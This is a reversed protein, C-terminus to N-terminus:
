EIHMKIVERYWYYDENMGGEDENQYLTESGDLNVEVVEANRRDFPNTFRLLVKDKYIEFVDIEYRNIPLELVNGEIVELKSVGTETPKRAPDCCDRTEDFYIFSGELKDPNVVEEHLSLYIHVGGDEILTYHNKGVYANYRKNKYSVEASFHNPHMKIFNINKNSLPVKFYGVENFNWRTTVDFTEGNELRSFVRVEIYYKKM